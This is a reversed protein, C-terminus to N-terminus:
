RTGPVVITKGHVQILGQQGLTKLVRGAMERSCGVIRGLEQRSIRIQMGDPHTVADPQKCLGLLAHAIRGTVETFAPDTVKLNTELLKHALQAYLAHMIEPCNLSFTRLREYSIQAVECRTRTVVRATRQHKEAFLGMEGFFDAEHLYALVLEHGAEDEILVSVSGELLLYLEDSIEGVSIVVTKAAYTRRHCHELLRNMAPSNALFARIAQSIYPTDMPKYRETRALAVNTM